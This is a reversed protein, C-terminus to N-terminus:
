KIWAGSSGLKYGQIVTDYLMAGQPNLYYWSGNDKLWGTKMAGSDEFYYWISNVKKWSTVMIGTTDDLYYWGNGDNLWGKHMTGDANYYVWKQNSDKGWASKLTTSVTTTNTNTQTANTNTQTTNAPTVTIDSKQEDTKQSNKGVLAYIEEDADWAVLNDKDYVSLQSYEKDLSCNKEFDQDNDFKYINDGSLAWLNGKVDIDVSKKGEQLEIHDDNGPEVYNSSSRAKLNIVEATIDKEEIKYNIIKEDAITFAAEDESLLNVKKGDEDSLAYTNVTKAYKIGDIEKSGQSKSIVQIVKFSVSKKDKSLTYGTTTNTITIGNVEKITDGGSKITVTALRYINSADQAIVKTDKVSASVEEEKDNTNQITVARNNSLKIKIKGLNYDADIYKGKEDTYVNFNAAGGNTESDVAKIKYTTSYWGEGFKAKPLEKLEKVKKVDDEAFRGDNDSRVNSKLALSVSDLQKEKYKDKEVKGNSLDVYYSGDDVEAYKTGYAESNYESDIDKLESYKGDSLYYAAEDKKYPQGSIYVKGEKYAIANYIKGKEEKVKETTIASVGIPMVSTVVAAALLLSTINSGRKFM